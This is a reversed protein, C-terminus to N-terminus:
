AAALEAITLPIGEKSVVAIIRQRPVAHHGLSACHWIDRSCLSFNDGLDWRHHDKERLEQHSRVYHSKHRYNQVHRKLDFIDLIFRWSLDLYRLFCFRYSYLEGFVAM